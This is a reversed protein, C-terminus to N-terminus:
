NYQLIERWIFLFIHINIYDSFFDKDETYIM